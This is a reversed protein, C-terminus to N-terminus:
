RLGLRLGLGLGLGLGLELRAGDAQLPISAAHEQARAIAGHVLAAQPLRHFRRAIQRPVAWRAGPKFASRREVLEVRRRQEAGVAPLSRLLQHALGRHAGSGLGCRGRGTALGPAETEAPM